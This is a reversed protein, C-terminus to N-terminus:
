DPPFSSGRGYRVKPGTAPGDSKQLVKRDQLDRLVDRAQYVNLDFMRRMTQNTIFDYERVHEIVKADIDDTTRRHYAVSRGLASLATTTLSYRPFAHRATRRSPEILRMDVMRELVSQADAGSRQIRPALDAATVASRTRLHDLALLVEVDTGANTALESTVFRAFADHGSGGQLTVSVRTGDDRYVPPKKGARLMERYVRDVGQGTREAVQVTTVTQLLLANRPTSPHTLINEPTVGYVLAGPSSVTMREPTHEVEVAGETEFDRHVLANVVLERVASTPYDYLQVQVGGRADIPHVTRRTEVADIIQEVAALIPRYERFHAIAEGGPSRRYQYAYGYTPVEARIVEPRGLLLLGARTLSGTDTVLRLDRLMRGTDLNALDDKGSAVILRRLRQVEDAAIADDIRASLPEASWDYLGRSALAQRQQEPTFPQCQTGVRRTATGRTNSYLTAGRPVTIILVRKGVHEVEEVPVSLSPSTRDFIGQVLVGVTMGPSVGMVSGAATPRDTVGLIVRGGEANALCIVADAVIELTRKFSSTDEQKFELTSSEYAAASVGSNALADLTNIVDRM